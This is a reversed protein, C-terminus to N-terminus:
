GCLESTIKTQLGKLYSRAKENEITKPTALEDLYNVTRKVSAIYKAKKRHVIQFGFTGLAKLTRELATKLFEEELAGFHSLAYNKISERAKKSFNFYGDVYLSAFDYTRPAFLADQYDLIFINGNKVIINESHYDRHCLSKPFSDVEKALSNLAKRTEQDVSENLFGECFHLLFFNLEYNLRAFDLTSFELGKSSDLKLLSFKKAEELAKEFIPEDCITQSLLKGEVFETILFPEDDDPSHVIRPVSIQQSLLFNTLKHFNEREEKGLEFVILLRERGDFKGLYFKKTSAHAKLPSFNGQSLIESLKASM